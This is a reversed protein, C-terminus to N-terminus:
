EQEDSDRSKFLSNAERLFHDPSDDEDSLEEGFREILSPQSRPTATQVTKANNAFM